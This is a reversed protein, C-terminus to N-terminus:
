LAGVTLYTAVPRDERSGWRGERTLLCTSGGGDTYGADEAGLTVLTEAFAHMSMRGVAFALQGDRMACLGARWVLARNVRPNAVNVGGRVLAPYLQVACTSGVPVQDGDLAYAYGGAVGITVGRADTAAGGDHELGSGDAARYELQADGGERYGRGDRVRFMAGDLVAVAGSRQLAVAPKHMAVRNDGPTAGDDLWLGLRSPAFRLLTVGRTTTPTV